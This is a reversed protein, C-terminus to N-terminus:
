YISTDDIRAQKNDTEASISKQLHNRMEEVAECDSCEGKSADLSQFQLSSVHYANSSSCTSIGIHLLSLSDLPRLNQNTKKASPSM